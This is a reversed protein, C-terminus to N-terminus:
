LFAHELLVVSLSFNYPQVANLSLRHLFVSNKTLWVNSCIQKWFKFNTLFSDLANGWIVDIVLHLLDHMTM